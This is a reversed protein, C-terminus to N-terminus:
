EKIIEIEVRVNKDAQSDHKDYIMKKGGWGKIDMREEPIGQAMLWHQITYARYLSLKKASAVTEEHSGNLSFFQKDDLDLHLVQGHSNGNTHGHIMIEMTPNSKMMDLLQNLEYISEERMIAADKYFYVKWLTAVDGQKYKQLKLNVLITDGVLDIVNSSDSKLPEDLDFTHEIEHFGFIESVVRIRNTRNEPDKVRVLQNTQIETIKQNREADYLGFKGNIERLSAADVTNLYVNWGPEQPEEPKIPEEQVTNELTGTKESEAAEAAQREERMTEAEEVEEVLKELPDAKNWESAPIHPGKFDGAYLWSDSMDSYSDRIEFLRTKVEERDSSNFTYVYYLNRYTNLKSTATLDKEALRQIFNNANQKLKFAGVVVYCQPNTNQAKSDVHFLCIIVLSMATRCFNFQPIKM